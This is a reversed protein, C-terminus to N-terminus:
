NPNIFEAIDKIAYYEPNILHALGCYLDALGLGVFITLILIGGFVFVIGEELDEQKKAWKVLKYIAYASVAGVFVWIADGVAHVYQQKMLIEWLQPVAVGMTEAMKTIGGQAMDILQQIQQTEM